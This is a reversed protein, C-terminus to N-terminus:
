FRGGVVVSDDSAGVWMWTGAAAFLTAAAFGVISITRLRDRDAVIDGAERQTAADDFARERELAMAGTIGGVLLGAGAAAFAGYMLYPPEPAGRDLTVSTTGDFDVPVLDRSDVYGQYYKPGYPAAFLGRRLEDDMAGREALARTAFTLQAFEVTGTTNKDIKAETTDTRVYATRGPPLAIVFPTGPSLHVDFARQGDDREVYFRGPGQPAIRGVLFPGPKLWGVDFIPARKDAAPGVAKVTPRARPDALQSNAAGVFAQLESYEIRQDGNIDGGGVMASYVEHSFVGGSIRSWEHASQGASAAVVVGVHPFRDLARGGALTALQAPDAARSEATLADDFAGRVDVMAGANCADIILHLRTAPLKAVIGELLDKQTLDGDLLALYPEGDPRTSGHGSFFVYVVTKRGAETDTALREALKAVTQDLAARTPPAARAAMAKHRRQTAEDLVALLHTDDSVRAFLEYFRVADDDAFRLPRLSDDDVPSANNGIALGYIRPRETDPASQLALLSLCLAVATM